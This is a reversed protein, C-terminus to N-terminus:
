KPKGPYLVSFENSVTEFTELGQTTPVIVGRTCTKSEITCGYDALRKRIPVAELRELSAPEYNAISQFLSQVLSSPSYGNAERYTEFLDTAREDVDTPVTTGEAKM